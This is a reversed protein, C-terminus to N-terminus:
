VILAFLCQVLHQNFHITEICVGVYNDYSGRVPGINKIWCKQTRSAEITPNSEIAGIHATALFDEFYM